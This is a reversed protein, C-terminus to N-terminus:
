ILTGKLSKWLSVVKEAKWWVIFYGWFDNFILVFSSRSQSM